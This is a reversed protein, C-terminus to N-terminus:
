VQDVGGSGGHCGRGVGTIGELPVPYRLTLLKLNHVFCPTIVSAVAMFAPIREMLVMREKNLSAVAVLLM